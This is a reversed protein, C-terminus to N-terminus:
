GFEVRAGDRPGQSSPGTGDASRELLSGPPRPEGGQLSPDNRPLVPSGAESRPQAAAAIGETQFDDSGSSGRGRVSPENLSPTAGRKSVGAGPARGGSVFCPRCPM